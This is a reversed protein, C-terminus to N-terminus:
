FFEFSASIMRAVIKSASAAKKIMGSKLYDDSSFAVTLFTVSMYKNELFSRMWANMEIKVESYM